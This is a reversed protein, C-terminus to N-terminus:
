SFGRWVCPLTPLRGDRENAHRSDSRPPKVREARHCLRHMATTEGSRTRPSRTRRSCRPGSTRSKVSPAVRMRRRATGNSPKQRSVISGAVSRGVPSTTSFPSGSAARGRMVSISSRSSSKLLNAVSARICRGAALRLSAVPPSRSRLTRWRSRLRGFPKPSSSRAASTPSDAVHPARVSSRADSRTGKAAVSASTTPESDRYTASPRRRAISSVASDASLGSPSSGAPRTSRAPSLEIVSTFGAASIHSASSRALAAGPSRRGGTTVATAVRARLTASPCAGGSAIARARTRVADPSQSSTRPDTSPSSSAAGVATIRSGAREGSSAGRM